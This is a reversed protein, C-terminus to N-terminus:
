EVRLISDGTGNDVSSVYGLVAGTPSIVDFQVRINNLNGLDERGAGLLTASLPLLMAQRPALQFETAASGSVAAKSRADLYSLTVRVTAPQGSIEMLSFNNRYTGPAGAITASRAADDIGAIKQQQGARMASSAALTPVATGYTASSGVLTTYNRSTVVLNGREPTILLYGITGVANFLTSVIDDMLVTHFPALRFTREIEGGGNIRYVARVETEGCQGDEREKETVCEINTVAVDTRFYTNGAGAAAGAVPIIVPESPKYAYHNTWDVVAWNDGSAADVPTAFAHFRTSANAASVRAVVGGVPVVDNIQRLELAALNETRQALVEGESNMFEVLVSGSRGAGEQLFLNTYSTGTKRLGALYVPASPSATRDSRFVPLATGYTGASNSVNLVKAAVNLQEWASSRVHLTGVQADGKFVNKVVDAIVVSKSVGLSEVPAVMSGGSATAPKFYLKLDSVSRGGFANFFSVDSLFLGVGGQIHGVGPVIYGVEGASLAPIASAVPNVVTTLAVSITVATVGTSDQATKALRGLISVLAVTGRVTGTLQAPDPRRTPDVTFTVTQTEGPSIRILQPPPVIWEVDTTLAGVFSATGVNSVNFSGSTSSQPTTVLDIRYASVTLRAGPPPDASLLRVPVTLTEGTRRVASTGTLNGEPRALGTLTILQSQGGALTFSTPSQTFFDGTQTITVSASEGGVNAVQYTAQGGGVNPAQTIAPPLAIVVLQAPVSTAPPTTLTIEATPDSFITNPQFGHAFTITRIIAFYSTSPQLGSVVVSRQWKNATTALPVYPGGPTTTVSVQYGGPNLQYRIPTWSLVASFPSVSEVALNTPAITQTEEWRSFSRDLAARLLTDSARVANNGLTGFRINVLNTMGFPVEGRFANNSLELQTLKTLQGIQSPIPGGLLNSWLFLFELKTLQTLEVPIEGSIENRSLNLYWLRTLRGLEPPIRGTLRNDNLLLQELETLSGLESPIPGSLRNRHLGLRALRRLSGLVPPIPGTLENEALELYQLDSMRGIETPIPGSFRNDDLQLNTLKLDAIGAPIAGEFRNSSLSLTTLKTLQRLRDLPLAGSLGANGLALFSLNPLEQVRAFLATGDVENIWTALWDLKTLRLLSIPLVGTLRNAAFHLYTLNSLDGLTEPVTGTLENSFFSLVRLQTLRGIERPIEGTLKNSALNLTQLQTLLTLEVPIAGRILNGELSVFQLSSLDRIRPSLTGSLGNFNLRLEMVATQADNCTVGFWSCETGPAGLWNDKRTWNAGGAANYFEILAEREIPSVAAEASAFALLMVLVFLRYLPM